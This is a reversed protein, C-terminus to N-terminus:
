NVLFITMNILVRHLTFRGNCRARLYLVLISLIFLLISLISITSISYYVITVLYMFYIVIFFLYDDYLIFASFLM